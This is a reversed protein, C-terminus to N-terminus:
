VTDTEEEPKVNARVSKRYYPSQHGHHMKRVARISGLSKRILPVDRKNHQRLFVERDIQQRVEGVSAATVIGKRVLSPAPSLGRIEGKVPSVVSDRLKPSHRLGGRTHSESELQRALVIPQNLRGPSVAQAAETDQLERVTVVPSHLRKYLEEFYGGKPTSCIIIDKQAPRHLFARLKKLLGM